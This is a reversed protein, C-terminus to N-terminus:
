SPVNEMGKMAAVDEEEFIESIGENTLHVSGPAGGLVVPLEGPNVIIPQAPVPSVSVRMGESFSGGDLVVVGNQIHGFLEMGMNDVVRSAFELRVESHLARAM